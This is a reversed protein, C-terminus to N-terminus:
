NRYVFETRNLLAWLLDEYAEARDKTQRVHTLSASLERENPERGLTRLYLEVVLEEDDPTQNVLRGLQTVPSRAKIADNLMGGNMLMLAQPITNTVEDRRVSPDYGFTQGFFFRAGLRGLPGIPPATGGISALEVGLAGQLVDLIQDARLRQACNAVFAPQHELRRPRAERQYTETAMITRYLWKVDHKHDVFERALLEMTQPATPKRDPGLDDIPEYFGEGILEAWVRNVFARAFWTNERATLWEALSDRRESDSKGTTLKRGTAFFVPAVMTGKASPDKLDPMYHEPDRRGMMGPRRAGFDASAIEIGRPQGNILVPRASIRPFFAAFEHFQQRKWRDTPHDHCQACQIQVGLFIRSMESAVDVPEAMQAVIVATEGHEQVNGTAEVFTQAIRDWGVNTNFQQTLYEELPAAVLLARDETRRYMIVDRWYRAWNRGYRVDNLLKEVIKTRKDAAPDFAFLTLESPSPLEGVLDLYVRRLFVEDSTRPALQDKVKAWDLETALQQDIRTALSPPTTVKPLANQTATKNAEAALLPSTGLAIAAVFLLLRAFM